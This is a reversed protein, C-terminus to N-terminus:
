IRSHLDVERRRRALNAAASAAARSSEQMPCGSCYEDACEANTCSECDGAACEACICACEKEDLVDDDEQTDDEGRSSGMGIVDAAIAPQQGAAAIKKPAAGPSVRALTQELTAIGDVIGQKLADAALVLRGQGFGDRVAAQSVGRGRAVDKVFMGYYADVKAQMAARAEDSLPEYPNGESKYKGASIVSVKVGMKELSTSLDKHEAFVGISGVQGSPTIVIEDAAAALWYAASACLANVVAVTKKKGRSKYIEDALEPIGEVYGGPSDFDFVIAKVSADALANRFQTALKQTSTGGSIESMLNIRQSIIGFVPILAAVGYSTSADGARAKLHPALAAQIEKKSLKTGSARINVIESIQAFKDPLIAWPKRYIEALVREYKM